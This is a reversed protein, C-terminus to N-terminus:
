FEQFDGSVNVVQTDTTPNPSADNTCSIVYTTQATVTDSASGSLTRSEPATLTRWTAGNRKITCFNVDVANWSVTTSGGSAVRDPVASVSVTPILVKVTVINSETYGGPGSCTVQYNQTSTLAGTSASGSTANHTDFGGASACSNANTSSWILTSSQANDIVSPNAFLTVIPPCAQTNCSQSTSGTCEAGGNTPSPNTCSRTRTGGGCSVSCSSFDSWGGNVPACTVSDVGVVGYSSGDATTGSMKIAGIADSGWAYGTWTCSADQVVGYSSGDQATGSLAIWGDWGETKPDLAGSCANKNAFAACARVWGTIEGTGSAINPAPHTADSAAFSIWGINSSWAYGSFAGTTVNEFVGYGPGSFSIWGVGPSASSWAYGTISMPDAAAAKHPVM